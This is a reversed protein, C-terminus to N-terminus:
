KGGIEWTISANATVARQGALVPPPAAAAFDARAFVPVPGGGGTSVSVSLMRGLSVGAAEAMLEGRHRAEAIAAKTAADEAGKADSIDFSIGSVRNAGAKVVQDLIAGSTAINRITVRVENSVSYGIIPAPQDAPPRPTTQYIPTVSFSSTGIDKEAVSAAKIADIAKQLDNSNAALADGATNARTVVGITVIALDPVVMVQGQGNAQLTPITDAQQAAAGLSTAALVLLAAFATRAALAAPTTRAALPAFM